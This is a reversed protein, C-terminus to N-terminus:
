EVLGKLAGKAASAWGQDFKLAKRFDESAGQTNGIKKLCQGRYYYYRAVNPEVGILKTFDEIALQWKKQDYLLLARDLIYNINTPNLLVSKNFFYLAKEGDKYTKNYIKGLKYNALHNNPEIKLASNLDDVALQFEKEKLYSDSRNILTSANEFARDTQLDLKVEIDIMQKTYYNARAPDYKNAKKLDAYAKELMDLKLYCTARSSLAKSDKPDLELIKGYDNIAKKHQDFYRYAAARSNYFGKNLPAANIAKDYYSIAKKHDRDRELAIQALGMYSDGDDGLKLIKKFAKEADNYRNMMMYDRAKEYLAISPDIVPKVPETHEQLYQFASSAVESDYLKANQMDRIANEIDNLKDFSLGRYYYATGNTPDEQLLITFNEVAQHYMGAKYLSKGRTHIYKLNTPESQIAQNFFDIAAIHDVELNALVQGYLFSAKVNEPNKMLVQTLLTKAKAADRLFYSIEAQALLNDEDIITKHHTSENKTAQQASATSNGSFTPKQKSELELVQELKKTAAEHYKPDISKLAILDKKAEDYKNKEIYLEARAFYSRGDQPNIHLAKTYDKLSADYNGIEKYCHGRGRIIDYRLPAIDIAKDFFHIEKKIDNDTSRIAHAIILAIRPDPKIDLAKVFPDLSAKFNNNDYYFYGKSILTQHHYPYGSLIKNFTQLSERQKGQIQFLKGQYLKALRSKPYDTQFRNILVNLRKQVVSSKMSYMTPIQSNGLLSHKVKLDYFEFLISYVASGPPSEAACREAFNYMKEVSGFWWPAIYFLKKRYAELAIPDAKVANEFWDNMTGEPYSKLICVNIMEAASNPDSPEMLFAKKFDEEAKDLHYKMTKWQKDSVTKAYGDGRTLYAQRMHWKGRVIFASHSPNLSNAWSEWIESDDKRTMGAYIDELLRTGDISSPNSAILDTFYNNVEEYLGDRLKNKVKEVITLPIAGERVAMTDNQNALNDAFSLCNTFPFLYLCSFFTTFILLKFNKM